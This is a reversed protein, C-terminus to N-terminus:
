TASNIQLRVILEKDKSAVANPVTQRIILGDLIHSLADVCHRWGLNAHLHKIFDNTVIGPGGLANSTVVHCYHHNIQLWPLSGITVLAFSTEKRRM